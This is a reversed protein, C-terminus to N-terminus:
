TSAWRELVDETWGQIASNAQMKYHSLAISRESPISLFMQVERNQSEVEGRDWEQRSAFFVFPQGEIRHALVCLQWPITFLDYNLAFTLSGEDRMTVMDNNKVVCLVEGGVLFHQPYPVYKRYDERRSAISITIHGTNAETVLSETYARVPEFVKCTGDPLTAEARFFPAGPVDFVRVLDSEVIPAKPEVPTTTMM